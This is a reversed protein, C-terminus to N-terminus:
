RQTRSAHRVLHRRVGSWYVLYYGLVIAGAGMSGAVGAAVVWSGGELGARWSEWARWFGYLVRATVVLTIGLVLPGNPTYYLVGSAPEWRTLRIGVFGLVCGTAFGAASYTFAGPVWLSTFAAGAFFLITSLALGALNVVALWGRARQRATGVRYRQVLSIPVLAIAMVVVLLPAVLVLLPVVHAYSAAPLFLSDATRSLPPM